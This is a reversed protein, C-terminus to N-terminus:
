RRWAWVCEICIFKQVGCNKWVVEVKPFEIQNNFEETNLDYTVVNKGNSWYLMGDLCIDCKLRKVLFNIGVSIEKWCIKNASYVEARVLAGDNFMLVRVVKHDDAKSDYGFGVSYYAISPCRRPSRFMSLWAKCVLRVLYRVPLRVLIQTILDDPLNGRKPRRIDLYGKRPRSFVKRHDHRTTKMKCTGPGRFETLKWRAPGSLRGCNLEWINIACM